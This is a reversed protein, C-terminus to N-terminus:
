NLLRDEFNQHKNYYPFKSHNLFHIRIQLELKEFHMLALDLYYIREPIMLSMKFTFLDKLFFVFYIVFFPNFIPNIIYSLM